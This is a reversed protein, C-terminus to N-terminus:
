GHLSGPARDDPAVSPAADGPQGNLWAQLLVAAAERDIVARQAKAKVGRERLSRSASVTTLREDHLEVPVRLASRIAPLEGEVLRAAPGRGGDLSLPLGVVVCVAGVEDVLEAIRRHDEGPERGREITAYPSALVAGPDSVAVGIRRAGLDLALVRGKV